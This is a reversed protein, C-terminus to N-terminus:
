TLEGVATQYVTITAQLGDGLAADVVGVDQVM